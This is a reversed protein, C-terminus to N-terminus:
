GPGAGPTIFTISEATRAAVALLLVLALEPEERAAEELRVSQASLRAIARRGRRRRRLTVATRLIAPRMSYSAGGAVRITGGALAPRYTAVPGSSHGARYADVLAGRPTRLEWRGDASEALESTVRGLVVGDCLLEWRDREPCLQLTRGAYLSISARPAEDVRAAYAGRV